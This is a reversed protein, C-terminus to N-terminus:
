LQWKESADSQMITVGKEIDLVQVQLRRIAGSGIIGIVVITNAGAANGISVFDDDSVIGSMQFKQEAEILATNQRDVVRIGKRIFSSTINDVVAGALSNTVANNYIWVQAGKPLVKQIEDSAFAAVRDTQGQNNVYENTVTAQDQLIRNLRGLIEWARPNGTEESIRQMYNAAVQTDGSAEYLISANEAAAFSSYREYIELYAQLAIKYSGAKVQALAEKMEAQLEKNKSKDKALARYEVVTHPAIDRHLMSLQRDIVSRLLEATSKIEDSNQSSSSNTGRKSVPGILSGDRARTISYNFEIEVNRQYITYYIIEGEKNKYQGQSTSDKSDVSIIRGTFLADAYNEISQNNNRLREIESHDVLTFYNMEQIRKTTAVTVYQAMEKSIRSNSVTEFPMIAIRKIGATNLTPPRQVRLEVTTACGTFILVLLTATKLINKPSMAIEPKLM